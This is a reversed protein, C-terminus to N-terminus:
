TSKGKILSNAIYFRTASLESNLSDVAEARRLYEKATEDDGEDFLFRGMLSLLTANRNARDLGQELYAFALDPEDADWLVKALLAILDSDFPATKQGDLLVELADDPENWSLYSEGLIRYGESYLPEKKVSAELFEIDDSNVQGKADLTDRIEGIRREFDRNDASLRLRTIVSQFPVSIDNSPVANLEIRAKEYEGAALYARALNVRLGLSQPNMRSAIQLVNIMQNIYGDPLQEIVSATITGENDTQILQDCYTWALSDRLSLLGIVLHGLAESNSPDANVALRYASCSERLSLADGSSENLVYREVFPRGAASVRSTGEKLVLQHEVLSDMISAYRLYINANAVKAEIARQYVDIASLDDRSIGYLDGIAIYSQAHEPHSMLNNELLDFAVLRADLKFIDKALIVAVIPYKALSSAIDMIKPLLWDKWKTQNFLIFRSVMQVLVWAGFDSHLENSIEILGNLSGLVNEADSGQGWLEFFYDLELHFIDDLFDKLNEQDLSDVIAYSGYSEASASSLWSVITIALNPLQNLIEAVTEGNCELKLVGDDERADDEIELVLHVNSAQTELRGWIAINEDLGELEWDDVDFQSDSIDWQYESPTDSLQSMLRYVCFSPWQEILTALVLGIGIGIEPTADSVIPWLGIRFLYKQSNQSEIPSTKSIFTSEDSNRMQAASILKQAFDIM